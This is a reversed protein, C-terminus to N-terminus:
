GDPLETESGGQVLTVEPRNAFRAIAREHLQWPLEISNVRGFGVDLAKQM